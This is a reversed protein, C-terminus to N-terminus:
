PHPLGPRRLRCLRQGRSRLIRAHVRRLAPAGRASQRTRARCPACILDRSPTACVVCTRTSTTAAAAAPPVAAAGREVMRGPVGLVPCASGRLVREAVSGLLVRSLGSRGHTGVVILDISHAAAYALIEDAPDGGTSAVEVIVRGRARAATDALLRTVDAEESSFVHFVHLRADFRRAYEIALELAADGEESFDTAILIERVDRM